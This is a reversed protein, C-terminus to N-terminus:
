HRLGIEVFVFARFVVFPMAGSYGLCHGIRGHVDGGLFPSLAIWPLFTLLAIRRRRADPAEHLSCVGSPHFGLFAVQRFIAPPHLSSCSRQSTPFVQSRCRLRCPPVQRRIGPLVPSSSRAVPPVHVREEALTTPAFSGWSLHKFDLPKLRPCQSVGHLPGSCWSLITWPTADKPAPLPLFVPQAM